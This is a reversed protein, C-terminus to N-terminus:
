GEVSCDEDRSSPRALRDIQELISRSAPDGFGIRRVAGTVIETGSAALAPRTEAGSRDKRIGLTLRGSFRRGTVTLTTDAHTIM